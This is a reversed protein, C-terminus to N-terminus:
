MPVAGVIEPTAGAVPEVTPPSGTTMEPEANPPAVATRKPLMEAEKAILLGVCIVAVVGALVAPTTSM